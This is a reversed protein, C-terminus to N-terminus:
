LTRMEKLTQIISEKFFKEDQESFGIGILAEM